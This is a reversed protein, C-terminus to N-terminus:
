RRRFAEAMGGGAVIAAALPAVRNMGGSEDMEQSSIGHEIESINLDVENQIIQGLIPALDPRRTIVEDIRPLVGTSELIAVDTTDDLGQLIRAMSQKEIPARGQGGFVYNWSGEVGNSADLFDQIGQRKSAARDVEDNIAADVLGATGVGAGIVAAPAGYNKLASVIRDKYAKAHVRPDTM